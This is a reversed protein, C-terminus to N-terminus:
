IRSLVAIPIFLFSLLALVLLVNVKLVTYRRNHLFVHLLLLAPLMLIGNGKALPALILCLFCLTGFLIKKYKYRSDLFSLYSIFALLCFFASLLTIRQIAYFTTSMNIPSLIWVSFVILAQLRYNSNDVRCSLKLVLLYVLLGNAVHIVINTWRIAEVSVGSSMNFNFVFSYYSVFRIYSENIPNFLMWGDIDKAYEYISYLKISDLM